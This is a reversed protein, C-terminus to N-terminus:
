CPLVQESPFLSDSPVHCAYVTGEAEEVWAQQELTTNLLVLVENERIVLKKNENLLSKFFQEWGGLASGDLCKINYQTLGKDDRATVSEILFSDELNHQHHHISLLQGAKLGGHYTSFTIIRPIMGYKDLKGTAFDFASARTDLKQEEIVDEYVGTGGELEKRKAIEEPNEAVVLIPYLGRYSIELVQNNLPEESNDQTITNSNYSFYFKKNQDVGNAGIDEPDVEVGDIFIRPKKAVPLRLIFTQSVGDPRPTPKELPIEGTIDLGARVYQRNRYQGRTKKVQLGKYNFSTDSLSYPAQYTERSFFHLKKEHDIFWNYGTIESLYNMAVNGNDYNFVAKSILPGDQITGETIGEEHFFGYIISKVMDGALRNEFATFVVRKDILQSYDVCSVAVYRDGDGYETTSEISGAFIIAQHDLVTVEMGVTLEMKPEYVTFSCTTRENIRDNISLSNKLVTVPQDNIYYTRNSHIM